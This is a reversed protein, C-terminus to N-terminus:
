RWRAKHSGGLLVDPVPTPKKIVQRWRVDRANTFNELSPASSSMIFDVGLNWVSTELSMARSDSVKLGGGFLDHCWSSYIEFRLASCSMAPDTM